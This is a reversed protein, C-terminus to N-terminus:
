GAVKFGNSNYEQGCDKGLGVGYVMFCPLCMISWVGSIKMKGDIFGDELSGECVECQEPMASMWRKGLSKERNVLGEIMTATQDQETM